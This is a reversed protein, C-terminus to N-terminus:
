GEVTQLKVRQLLYFLAHKSEPCRACRLAPYWDKLDKYKWQM